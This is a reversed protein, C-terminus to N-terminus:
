FAVGIRNETVKVFYSQCFQDVFYFSSKWSNVVASRVKNIARVRFTLALLWFLLLYRQWRSLFELRLYIPLVSVQESDSIVNILYVLTYWHM